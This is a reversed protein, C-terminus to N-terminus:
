SPSSVILPISSAAFIITLPILSYGLVRKLYWEWMSMGSFSIIEITGSYRPALEQHCVNSNRQTCSLSGVGRKQSSTDSNTHFKRRRKKEVKDRGNETKRPFPIVLDLISFTRIDPGSIINIRKLAQTPCCLEHFFVSLTPTLFTEKIGETITTIGIDSLDLHWKFHLQHVSEWNQKNHKCFHCLTTCWPKDLLRQNSIAQQYTMKRECVGVERERM